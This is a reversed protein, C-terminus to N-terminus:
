RAADVEGGDMVAAVARVVDEWTVVVAETDVGWQAVDKVGMPVRVQLVDVVLKENMFQAAGACPHRHHRPRMERLLEHVLLKDHVHQADPICTPM